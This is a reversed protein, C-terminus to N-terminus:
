RPKNGPNNSNGDFFAGSNGLTLDALRGLRTLKPKTYKM